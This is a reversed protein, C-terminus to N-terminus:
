MGKMALMGYQEAVVRELVHQIHQQICNCLATATQNVPLSVSLKTRHSFHQKALHDWYPAGTIVNRGHLWMVVSQM